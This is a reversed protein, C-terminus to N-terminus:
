AHALELGSARSMATNRLEIIDAISEETREVERDAGAREFARQAAEMNRLANGLQCRAVTLLSSSRIGPQM